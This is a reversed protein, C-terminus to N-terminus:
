EPTGAPPTAPPTQRRTNQFHAFRWGEPRRVAVLSVTSLRDPTLEQGPLAVGGETSVLLAVDPTLFRVGAEAGFGTMRSGRLVTAFLWRHSEVIERRGRALDGMFTVYEADETFAAGYADADGQDWARALSAALARVAAEDTGHQGM